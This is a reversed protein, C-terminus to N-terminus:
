WWGRKRETQTPDEAQVPQQHQRQQQQQQQQQVADQRRRLSAELRAIAASTSDVDKAPYRRKQEVDAAEADAGSTEAARQLVPQPGRLEPVMHVLSDQLLGAPWGVQLRLWASASGLTGAGLWADAGPRSIVSLLSGVM